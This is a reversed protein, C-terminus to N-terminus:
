SGRQARWAQFTRDIQGSHKELHESYARLWDDASYPGSETHRGARSWAEAPLGRLLATTHDRVGEVCRLATDLPLSHYDLANVWHEQDYGVVLPEKEALVYRIRGAANTESDACHCVIEHVSWRDPAPKWKRAEEPVRVLAEKLLVPGHAYREIRAAREEASLPM